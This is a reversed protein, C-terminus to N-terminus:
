GSSKTLCYGVGVRTEIHLGFPELRQRLRYIHVHLSQSNFSAHDGWAARWIEESSVLREINRALRSTILFEKLPLRLSREGCAIYYNAHEIRLYGDDYVDDEQDVASRNAQVVPM